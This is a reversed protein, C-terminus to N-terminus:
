AALVCVYCTTCDLYLVCHWLVSLIYVNATSIICAHNYPFCVYAPLPLSLFLSLSYGPLSLSFCLSLSLSLSLCLSFPLCTLRVRLCVKFTHDIALPYEFCIFLVRMHFPHLTCFLFSYTYSCACLIYM